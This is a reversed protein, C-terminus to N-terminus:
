PTGDSDDKITTFTTGGVGAYVGGHADIGNYGYNYSAAFAVTGGNNIAPYYIGNDISSFPGTSSSQYVPTVGNGNGTYVGTAGTISNTATFAVTGSDNLAPNYSLNTYVGTNDVITTIPGGGSSNTTYLGMVPNANLGTLGLFAVTGTNNITPYQIGNNFQSSNADIVNVFTYGARAANPFFATALVIIAPRSTWRPLQVKKADINNVANRILHLSRRM